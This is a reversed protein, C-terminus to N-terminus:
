GPIEFGFRLYVLTQSSLKAELALSMPASQSGILHMQYPGTRIAIMWLFFGAWDVPIPNISLNYLQCSNNPNRQAIQIQRM